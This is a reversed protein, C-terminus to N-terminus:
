EGSLLMSIHTHIYYVYHWIHQINCQVIKEYSLHHKRFILFSKKETYVFARVM